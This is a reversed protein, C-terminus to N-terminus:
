TEHKTMLWSFLQSSRRWFSRNRAFYFRLEIVLCSSLLLQSPCGNPWLLCPGFIPPTGRKPPILQAGDLVIDGPGLGVETGLPMKIWGATQGCYVHASFQLSYGKRSPCDPDGDLVIDGPRPRAGYWNADQHMWGNSWLLCPGFIQPSQGRKSSPSAPDGDFAFNGPGLGVEMGLPM